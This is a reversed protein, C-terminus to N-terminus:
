KQGAVTEQPEEVEHLSAPFMGASNLIKDGQEAEERYTKYRLISGTGTIFNRVRGQTLTEGM